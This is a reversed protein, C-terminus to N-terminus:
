SRPTICRGDRKRGKERYAHEGQNTGSDWALSDRQTSRRRGSPRQCKMGPQGEMDVRKVGQQPVSAGNWAAERCLGEGQRVGPRADM